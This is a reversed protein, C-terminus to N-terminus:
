RKAEDYNGEIQMCKRNSVLIKIEESAVRIDDKIEVRKSGSEDLCLQSKKIRHLKNNNNNNNNNADNSSCAATMTGESKKEKM